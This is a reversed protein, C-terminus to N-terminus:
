KISVGGGAYGTVANVLSLGTATASYVLLFREGASVPINLAPTVGNYVTGITLVGTLTFNVSAGSIPSFSNSGAAAKYLQATVTVTSGVLSLVVSTSFNAALSTIAGARPVSFAHNSLLSTNIVGGIVSVGTASSGFGVISTTGLLGGAITTVVVPTGSAYPIIAESAPSIFPVWATGNYYYFGPADDTQYILLGTAPPNPTNILDRAAKNMRPILIGKNTSTIDLQASGDPTITGIGVQAKAFVSIFLLLSAVLLVRGAKFFQTNSQTLFSFNEM